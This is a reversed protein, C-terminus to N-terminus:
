VKDQSDSLHEAGGVGMEPFLTLLVADLFLVFLHTNCAANSLPDLLEDITKLRVTPPGLLLSAVVPHIKSNLRSMLMSRIVLQEEPTPDPPAQAPYGNPFLARKVHAVVNILQYPALVHTYLVYPLFRDLFPSFFSVIMSLLQVLASSTFRSSSSFLTTALLLSPFAYDEHSSPSVKAAPQPVSTQTSSSSSSSTQSLNSARYVSSLYPPAPEAPVTPSAPRASLESLARRGYPSSNVLQVIHVAQKYANVVTLGVSSVTRITSLFLVILTHISPAKFQPNEPAPSSVPKSINSVLTAVIDDRGLADLVLKQIFWGQTVRPAVSKCIVMVIVERIIHRETEPVWDEEPLCAKLVADIATRVYVEDLRGESTIGIHQQQSHFLAATSAAGGAAYASGRKAAVQRYDVFHQNLILPVERFVLSSLDVAQLREELKRVVHTLVHTIHPLFDKDYRTLKTWWPNVFARLALAIFDYLEDNLTPPVHSSTILPPIPSDPPLHPFLLRKALTPPQSSSLALTDAPARRRSSSTISPTSRQSTPPM